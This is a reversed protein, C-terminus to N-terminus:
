HPKEVIKTCVTRGSFIDKVSHYECIIVYRLSSSCDMNEFYVDGGFNNASLPMHTLRAYPM